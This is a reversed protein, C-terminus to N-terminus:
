WREKEAIIVPIGCIKEYRVHDFVQFVEPLYEQTKKNLQCSNRKKNIKIIGSGDGEYIKIFLSGSPDMHDRVDRLIQLRVEPEAIVNLVNSLMAVPYNTRSMTEVNEEPTRNFPDYMHNKMSVGQLFETTTEFKGGGYDLVDWNTGAYKSAIIRALAPVKRNNVSTCASSYKQEGM